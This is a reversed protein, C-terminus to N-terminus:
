SSSGASLRAHLLTPTGRRSCAGGPARSSSFARTVGLVAAPVSPLHGAGGSQWSRHVGCIWTVLSSGCPEPPAVHCHSSLTQAAVVLQRSGSDTHREQMLDRGAAPSVLATLRLRRRKYLARLLLLHRSRAEFVARWQDWVQLRLQKEHHKRLEREQQSFVGRVGAVERWAYFTAALRDRWTIKSQTAAAIQLELDQLQQQLSVNVGFHQGAVVLESGPQHWPTPSGGRGQGAGAAGQLLQQQMSQLMDASATQMMAAARSARYHRAMSLWWRFCCLLLWRRQSTSANASARAARRRWRRLCRRALHVEWFSAALRWAAIARDQVDRNPPAHPMASAALLYVNDNNISTPHCPM